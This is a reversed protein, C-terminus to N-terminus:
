FIEEKKLFIEGFSSPCNQSTWSGQLFYDFGKQEVTTSMKKLCFYYGERNLSEDIGIEKLMLEKNQLTGVLSYRVFMENSDWIKFFSTGIINGKKDISISLEMLYKSSLGGANQTVYGRYFGSIKDNQAFLGYSILCFFMALTNFKQM